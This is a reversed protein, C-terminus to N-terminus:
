QWGYQMLEMLLDFGATFCSEVIVKLIIGGASFAICWKKQSWNPTASFHIVCM